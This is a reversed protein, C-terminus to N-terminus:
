KPKSSGMALDQGLSAIQTSTVSPSATNIVAGGAEGVAIYDSQPNTIVGVIGPDESSPTFNVTNGAAAGPSIPNPMYPNAPRGAENPTEGSISITSADASSKFTVKSVNPATGFNMDVGASFMKTDGLQLGPILFTKAYNGVNAIVVSNEPNAVPGYILGKENTAKLNFLKFRREYGTSGAGVTSIKTNNNSAPVYDTYRGSGPKGM